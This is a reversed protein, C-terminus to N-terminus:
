NIDCNISVPNGFKKLVLFNDNVPELWNVFVSIIGFVMLWKKRKM